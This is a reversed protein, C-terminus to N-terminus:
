QLGFLRMENNKSSSDDMGSPYGRTNIDGVTNDGDYDPASNLGNEHSANCDTECSNGGTYVPVYMVWYRMTVILMVDCLVIM